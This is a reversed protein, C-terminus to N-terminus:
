RRRAAAKRRPAAPPKKPAASPAPGPADVPMGAVTMQLLEDVLSQMEQADRASSKFGHAAAIMVRARAEASPQLADPRAVAARMVEALVGALRQTGQEFVDKAFSFSSNILEGAAPSRAVIDFPRVSWVEFVLRLKALLSRQAPLGAAIDRFMEDHGSAVVARLIAEKGPFRLYLAPRSMGVERAIDDMSARRYGYRMFVETASRLIRQRKEDIMRKESNVFVTLNDIFSVRVNKNM